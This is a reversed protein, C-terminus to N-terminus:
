TIVEEEAIGRAKAFNLTTKLSDLVFAAGGFIKKATNYWAVVDGWAMGVMSAMKKAVNLAFDKVVKKVDDIFKQLPNEPTADEIGLGKKYFEVANEYLGEIKSWIWRLGLALSTKAMAGMWGKVSAMKKYATDVHGKVRNALNAITPINWADKKKIIIDMFNDVKQKIDGIGRRMIAKNYTRLPGAGGTTINKLLKLASLTGKGLEKLRSWFGENLPGWWRNMEDYRDLALETLITPIPKSENIAIEIGLVETIYRRDQLLSEKLQEEAIYGRWGEM